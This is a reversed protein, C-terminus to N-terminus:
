ETDENNLLNFRGNELLISINYEGPAKENRFMKLIKYLCTYKKVWEEKIIDFIYIDKNNAVVLSTNILCFTQYLNVHNKIKQYFLKNFEIENDKREEAVDLGM